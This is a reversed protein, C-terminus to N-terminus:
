KGGVVKDPLVIMTGVFLKRQRWGAVGPRQAGPLRQLCVTAQRLRVSPPQIYAPIRRKHVSLYSFYLYIAHRDPHTGRYEM